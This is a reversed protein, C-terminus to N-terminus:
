PADAFPEQQTICHVAGLGVVLDIAPIPVVRRDPFVSRLVEVAVGDNPDNFVPVLVAGNAIYFNAYSAPLRQGDHFRPAPMPLAVVRLPQGDQDTGRQLREFNERLPEYNEDRPDSEVVAVVTRPAVFRAVDDVHGDTDDGAIGGNLWLVHRVGLFDKLYREIEARGLGPNRNPHLLCSETTLLAGSGNVDISGGELVIGPQFFPVGLERAVREAVEADRQWPAYKGGWANFRWGVAALEVRTERQRTLFIPGCDRIWADDTPVGYFRVREPPLGTSELAKRAKELHEEDAVLIRVTESEAIARAVQAWVAPIHEFRGPWSDRKHPWILWTAAHPEWEAPMRFGLEAPVM